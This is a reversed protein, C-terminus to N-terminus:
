IDLVDKSMCFMLVKKAQSLLLLHVPSFGGGVLMSHLLSVSTLRSGPM